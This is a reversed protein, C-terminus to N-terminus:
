GRFNQVFNLKVKKIFDKNAFGKTLTSASHGNNSPSPKAKKKNNRKKAAGTKEWDGLANESGGLL